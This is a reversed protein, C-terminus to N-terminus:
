ERAYKLRSSRLACTPFRMHSQFLLGGIHAAAHSFFAMRQPSGGWLTITGDIATILAPQLIAVLEHMFCVVGIPWQNMQPIVSLDAEKQGRM